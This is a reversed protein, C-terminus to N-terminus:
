WGKMLWEYEREREQRLLTLDSDTNMLPAILDPRLQYAINLWKMANEILFERYQPDEEEAAILSNCAAINYAAYFEPSDSEARNRIVPNTLLRSDNDEVIGDEHAWYPFVWFDPDISENIGFAISSEFLSAAYWYRENFYHHNAAWYYLGRLLDFPVIGEIERMQNSVFDAYLMASELNREEIAIEIQEVLKRNDIQALERFKIKLYIDEDPILDNFYFVINTLESSSDLGYNLPTIETIDFLLNPLNIKFSVTANEIPSDWLAGTKLIYNIEVPGALGPSYMMENASQSYTNTITKTEYPEFSVEFIYVESYRLDPFDPNTEYTEKSFDFVEGDVLASFELSESEDVSFYEYDTDLYSRGSLGPLLVPFGMTIDQKTGSNNKFVYTCDYDVRLRLNYAYSEEYDYGVVVNIEEEVMSINENKIPYFSGTISNRVFASDNGFVSFVSGLFIIVFWIKKSVM